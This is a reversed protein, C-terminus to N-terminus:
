IRNGLTRLFFSEIYCSLSGRRTGHHSGARLQSFTSSIKSSFQPFRPFTAHFQFYNKLNRTKVARKITELSFFPNIVMFKALFALYTEQMARNEKAVCVILLQQRFGIFYSFFRDPLFGFFVSVRSQLVRFVRFGFFIYGVRCQHIFLCFCTMNVERYLEVSSQGKLQHGALYTNHSTAIFYRSLPMDLSECPQKSIADNSSDM